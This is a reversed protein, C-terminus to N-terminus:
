FTLNVGFVYSRDLPYAGWDINRNVNSQGRSNVEPNYGSYDTITFLNKGTVYFKLSHIKDSKLPVNYGLTVAKLRLHSGDEVVQSNMENSGVAQEGPGYKPFKANPNEPTWRETFRRKTNNVKVALNEFQILNINLVDMGEVGQFFVNLSFNGYEFNNNWGYIYDPNPNGVIVRDDGDIKGDDNQDVIRYDGVQAAPKYAALEEENRIVGDVKLGYYAGLPYGEQVLTASIFKVPLDLGFFRDSEGLDVVLNRNAAINFNTTWKFKKDLVRGTLGLEVGKNEVSGSNKLATTFGSSIPLTVELLLDDTRKRYYDMNLVIRDNLLGLDLGIDFQKTTEWRLDPNGLSSPIFGIVPNGNFSYRVNELAALSRYTGIETNGTLGYSVRLKLDSVTRSSSLFNEDSVRWAFAGSPFFGWKNGDGFRSSGDMRATATFLYKHKFGYNVRGVWSVLDWRQQSANISPGGARNGTEIGANKQIDTIFNVNVISHSKFVENQWTYALMVNLDHDNGFTKNYTLMNENLFSSKESYATRAYGGENKVSGYYTTRDFYIERNNKALDAGFSVHFKLGDLIKYEGFINGIVRDSIMEDFYGTTLAVPNDNDRPNLRTSYKNAYNAFVYNGNEDKVPLIPLATLAAGIIGNQPSNEGNAVLSNTISRNISLTNGIKFRENVEKDLNVRFSYRKFGSNKVIGEQDYYNGSFTYNLGRDGGSISIQHNQIPAQQFILDQWDTDNNEYSEPTPLYPAHGKREAIENVMTAYDAANMMEYRKAVEQVGYYGEYSIRAKGPKGRKTTIIVVGNAGRAGYIATASADKLIEISEIDSPNITSLPNPSVGEDVTSPMMTADNYIPFGDIVYLPENGANISTGGRVRITIGGGPATSAQTVQVGAVRGQIGQELSTIPVQKLQESSVSAVSGTLDRKNVTGYGVVVVEELSQMDSSMSVNLESRSRVAVEQTVYGIFSFILVADPDDLSMTFRGDADTSTGQTTGKVIVNVGPLPEDGSTVRGRVNFGQVPAEEKPSLVIYNGIQNYTLNTQALLLDLTTKVSRTGTRLKIKDYTSIESVRYTFRFSSQAEISKLGSALAEGNLGVTVSEKEIDQGSGDIALLLSSSFATLLFLLINVKMYFRTQSSLVIRDFVSRREHATQTSFHM